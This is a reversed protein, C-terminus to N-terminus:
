FDLKFNEDDKLEDYREKNFRYKKAKRGRMLQMDESCLAEDTEELMEKEPFRILKASSMVQLFEMSMSDEMKPSPASECPMIPQRIENDDEMSEVVGLQLLKKQFNRRDFKTDLIKEYLLQLQPITFSRDLLDFGIPEFRIDRRITKLVEAFIKNHDFALDMQMAEDVTFWKANAADDGAHVESHRVLAYFAVSIVRERPDRNVESFVKVQKLFSLRLGTEERLERIACEEVTEDMKLFGGPFAWKGRFPEIGREILLVNIDRGDFGLVVCDTAVAPHPYEYEYKKSTKEM